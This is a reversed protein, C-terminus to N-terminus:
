CESLLEHVALRVLKEIERAVELSEYPEASLAKMRSSVSARLSRTRLSRSHLVKISSLDIAGLRRQLGHTTVSSLDIGMLEVSRPTM